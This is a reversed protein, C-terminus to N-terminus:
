VKQGLAWALRREFDRRPARGVVSAIQLVVSQLDTRIERATFRMVPIGLALMSRDRARDREFSERGGHFAWGDAEVAVTDEVVFDLRGVHPVVVQEAFAFGATALGVRTVTELPSEAAGSARLRLWAHRRADRAGFHALDGALLVGARLAADVIVLQGVPSTCWGAQDVAVAASAWLRVSIPASTRHLVVGATVREPRRSSSRDRPVVLHTCKHDEWVPLGWHECATVCGVQARILRALCVEHSASALAYTGSGVKLVRGSRMERALSREPVGAILLETRRAAGGLDDLARLLDVGGRHGWM